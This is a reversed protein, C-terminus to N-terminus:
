RMESVQWRWALPQGADRCCGGSTGTARCSNMEHLCVELRWQGFSDASALANWLLAKLVRESRRLSSKDEELHEPM